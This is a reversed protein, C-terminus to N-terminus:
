IERREQRYRQFEEVLAQDIADDDALVVAPARRCIRQQRDRLALLDHGEALEDIADRQRLGPRRHRGVVNRRKLVGAAGGSQRLAGHEGVAVQEGAVRDEVEPARGRAGLAAVHDVLHDADQRQKMDERQDRDQQPLDIAAVDDQQMLPEVDFRHQAIDLHLARRANGPTGVMHIAIALVGPM